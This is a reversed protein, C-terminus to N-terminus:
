KLIRFLKNVTRTHGKVLGITQLWFFCSFGQTYIM